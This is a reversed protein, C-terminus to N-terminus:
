HTNSRNVNPTCLIANCRSHFAITIYQNGNCVRIPLRGTDNTYLKDLPFDMIYLKNTPPSTTPKHSLKRDPKDTTPADPTALPASCNSSTPKPKTFRLDQHMQKLHDKITADSSPCHKM